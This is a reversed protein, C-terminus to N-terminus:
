RAASLLWDEAEILEREYNWRSRPTQISCFEERLAGTAPRLWTTSPSAYM